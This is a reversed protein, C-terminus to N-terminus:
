HPKSINDHIDSIIKHHLEKVLIDVSETEDNNIIYDALAIKDSEPLQNKIRNSVQEKSVKDRKMVRKIRMEEPAAVVILKNFSKYSGNEVLLAAEYLAYPVDKLGQVWIASDQHVAPHVAQNIAKLLNKNNFIKQAVFPRNLRGNRHYAGKGLIEKIRTKLAPNHNMLYKAKADAYYVPINLSEFIKCVTTKGSGIGGTIGILWTM